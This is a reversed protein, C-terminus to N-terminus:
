STSLKLSIISIIIISSPISKFNLTLGCNWHLIHSEAIATAKITASINLMDQIKSLFFHRYFAYIDHEKQQWGATRVKLWTFWVFSRRTTNHFWNINRYAQLLSYRVILDDGIRYRNVEFDCCFQRIWKTLHKLQRVGMKLLLWKFNKEYVINHQVYDIHFRM